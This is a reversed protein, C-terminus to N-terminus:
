VPVLQLIESSTLAKNSWWYFNRIQVLGTTTTPNSLGGWAWPGTSWMIGSTNTRSVGPNARPVGNVYLTVNTGDAVVTINTWSASGPSVCQRYVQWNTNGVGTAPSPGVTRQNISFGNKEVWPGGDAGNTIGFYPSQGAGSSPLAHNFICYDGLDGVYQWGSALKIDMSFSYTNSTGTCDPPTVAWNGTLTSPDVAAVQIPTADFLLINRSPVPVLQLQVIESSTLARNSWWYFNKMQVLGAGPRPESYRGTLGEWTWPGTDWKIGSTNVRLDPATINTTPVGNVYLTINTGNSVVTINTWSTSLIGNYVQVDANGGYASNGITQQDIAVGNREFWDGTLSGTNISFYPSYGAHKFLYYTSGGVSSWGAELKIDM